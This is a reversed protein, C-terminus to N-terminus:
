AIESGYRAVFRAALDKPSGIQSVCGMAQIALPMSDSACTVPNQIWVQGGRRAMLRAGDKGDDGMGSFFIVGSKAGYCDAVMAVVQDISPRYQGRWHEDKKLLMTGDKLLGLRQHSPVMTLTNAALKAGQVALEGSFCSDRVVSNVLARNQGSEIHQAYVFAVNMEAPLADLFTKVAEPGGTSAALVWVARTTIKEVSSLHSYVSLLKEKLQRSWSHFGQEAASYTHGEGFIVPQKLGFLWREFLQANRNQQINFTDVDVLWIQIAKSEQKELLTLDNLLSDILWVVGVKFSCAEVIQRLHHQQVLTHSILGVKPADMM